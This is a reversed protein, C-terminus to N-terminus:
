AAVLLLECTVCVPGFGADLDGEYVRGLHDVCAVPLHTCVGGRLRAGPLVLVESVPSRMPPADSFRAGILSGIGLIAADALGHRAAAAEITRRIDTHPQITMLVAPAGDPATGAAPRPRFVSFGTEDDPTVELRAGFIVEAPVEADSALRARDYLLHGMGAGDVPGRWRAHSHVFWGGDRRGVSGPAVEFRVDRHVFTDSYFAAHRDDAPGDPMVWSLESLELGDMLVVGGDAGTADMERAIGDLLLEGARLRLAVRRARCALADFRRAKVPGYHRLWDRSDGEPMPAADPRAPPQLPRSM